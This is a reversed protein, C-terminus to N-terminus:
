EGDDGASPFLDELDHRFQEGPQQRERLASNFLVAVAAHRLSGPPSVTDWRSADKGAQWVRDDACGGYPASSDAVLECWCGDAQLPGPSRAMCFLSVARSVAM